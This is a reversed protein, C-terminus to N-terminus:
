RSHAKWFGADITRRITPYCECVLKELKQRDLVRIDARRYEIAGCDRLSRAATTVSSRRAGLMEALSEHSLQIHDNCRDASLLLIRSLRSTLDHVANCATTQQVHAMVTMHYHNIAEKLGASENLIRRFTVGSIRSAVGSVQVRASTFAHLSGFGEITGIAGEHGVSVTEVTRGGELIAMLSVIGSQLFYVHKIQEGPRHLLDGPFLLVERLHPALLAFDNPAIEALLRNKRHSHQKDTM